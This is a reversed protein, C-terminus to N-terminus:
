NSIDQRATLGLLIHSWLTCCCCIAPGRGLAVVCALVLVMAVALAWSRSRSRDGSAAVRGVASSDAARLLAGTDPAAAVVGRDGGGGGQGGGRRGAHRHGGGTLHLERLAASIGARLHAAILVAGVSSIETGKADRVFEMQLAEARAM